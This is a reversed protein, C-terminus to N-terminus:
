PLQPQVINMEPFEIGRHGARDEVMSNIRDWYVQIEPPVHEPIGRRKWRFIEVVIPKGEETGELLLYPEATVLDKKRLAGRYEPMLELFTRMQDPKVRFTAMVTEPTDSSANQAVLPASAAAVLVVMASISFVRMCTKM